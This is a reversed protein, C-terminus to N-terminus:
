ARLAVIKPLRDEVVALVHDAWRALAAAKEAAYTARNYVGAVGSRHGSVHNLVAEVIHPQVSLRDHMVTSMTRRLDHLRWPALQVQRDLEAKAKSWGSFGRERRGFIFDRDPRGPQNELISLAAPTLPIDFPRSNKTRDGPLSITAADLDVESWRLSGVEDRRAGTLLLLRVIASYQDGTSTAKWIARLENDTLVRERPGSEPHRNTNLVPNADVIGERM